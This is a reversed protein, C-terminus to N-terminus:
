ELQIRSDIKDEITIRRNKAKIDRILEATRPSSLDVGNPVEQMPSNDAHTCLVVHDALESSYRKMENYAALARGFGLELNEPKEGDGDTHGHIVLYRKAFGGTDFTLVQGAEDKSLLKNFVSRGAETLSTKGPAFIIDGPLNLIRSTTDGTANSLRVPKAQHISWLIVFVIMLNTM